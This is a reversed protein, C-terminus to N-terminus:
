GGECSTAILNLNKHFDISTLSEEHEKSKDTEVLHLKKDLAHQGFQEVEFIDWEGSEYSFIFRDGNPGGDNVTGSSMMSGSRIVPETTMTSNPRNEMNVRPLYRLHRIPRYLKVQYLINLRKERRGDKSNDLYWVTLNLEECISVFLKSAQAYEIQTIASRAVTVRAYIKDLKLTNVFYVSGKSMGFVLYEQAEAETTQKNTLKKFLEVKANQVLIDSLANLHM